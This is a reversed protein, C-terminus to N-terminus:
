DALFLQMVLVDHYKTGDFLWNPLTATVGFGLRVFLRASVTNERPVIAYLQHLHLTTRAYDVLQRLAATALGRKRYSDKIVIGVEARRHAPSFNIIDAIGVSVGNSDDVMLRMQCDAYIDNTTGAIYNHLVYRSYPVNTLGVNWIERDNELAYLTDLDEPEMARLTVNVPKRVNVSDSSYNHVSM